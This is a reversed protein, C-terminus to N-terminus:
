SQDTCIKNICTMTCKHATLDSINVCVGSKNMMVGASWYVTHDTYAHAQIEFTGKEKASCM